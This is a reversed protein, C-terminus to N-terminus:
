TASSDEDNGKKIKDYWKGHHSRAYIGSVKGDYMSLISEDMRPHLVALYFHLFFMCVAVIFTIDHLLLCWQFVGAPVDGKLFWMIFGTIVFVVSGAFIGVRYLKMGTNSHGQPPMLRPDGGFYYGPAAKLWGLDEKGWTLGEKVFEWASRWDYLAYLVPAGILIVAGIRHLVRNVSGITDSTIWPIFLLMGSIVLELFVVAILWHFWRARKTYREVLEM